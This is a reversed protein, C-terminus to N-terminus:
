GTYVPSNTAAKYAFGIRPWAYLTFGLGMLVGKKGLGLWLERKGHIIHKPTKM